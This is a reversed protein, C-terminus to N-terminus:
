GEAILKKGPRGRNVKESEQHAEALEKLCVDYREKVKGRASLQRSVATL